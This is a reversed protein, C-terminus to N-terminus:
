GLDSPTKTGRVDTVLTSKMNYVPEGNATEADDVRTIAIMIPKIRLVTGDALRYESWAEKAELVEVETSNGMTGVSLDNVGTERASASVM